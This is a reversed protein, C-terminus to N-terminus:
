STSLCVGTCQLTSPSRKPPTTSKYDTTRSTDSTNRDHHVLSLILNSFALVAVLKDYQATKQVQVIVEDESLEVISASVFGLEAHPVWVLNNTTRKVKDETTPRNYSDISVPLLLETSSDVEGTASM